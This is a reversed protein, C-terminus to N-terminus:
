VENPSYAHANKRGPSNCRDEDRCQFAIGHVGETNPIIGISDGTDENLINVQTGHSVYLKNNNAAIYDWGGASAIHYTKVVKYDDKDQCSANIHLTLLSISVLPIIKLLM